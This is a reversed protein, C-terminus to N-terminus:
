KTMLDPVYVSRIFIECAPLDAVRKLTEVSFTDNEYVPPLRVIVTDVSPSHCILVPVAPHPCVLM